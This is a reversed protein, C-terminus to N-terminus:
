TSYLTSNYGLLISYLYSLKRTEPVIVTTDPFIPVCDRCGFGNLKTKLYNLLLHIYVLHM